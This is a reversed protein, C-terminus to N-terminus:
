IRRYKALARSNTCDAAFKEERKEKEDGGRLVRGYMIPQVIAARGLFQDEAHREVAPRESECVAVLVTEPSKGRSGARSSRVGTFVSHEAVVLYALQEFLTSPGNNAVFLVAGRVSVFAILPEAIIINRVYRKECAEHEREATRKNDFKRDNM